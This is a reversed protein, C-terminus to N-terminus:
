HRGARSALWDLLPQQVPVLPDLLLVDTGGRRAVESRTRFVEARHRNAEGSVVVQEGTELDELTVPVGYRVDQERPTRLVILTAEIGSHELSPRLLDAPDHWDTVGILLGDAGGGLAAIAAAVRPSLSGAPASRDLADVIRELQRRDRSPPVITEGEGVIALSPVDGNAVASAALAAVIRRAVDVKRVGDEEHAMSGSADLIFRVPLATEADAERVFFRDSRALLKWDVRRLDDGPQYGRYQAFELGTGPLRSAHRGDAVGSGLRRSVLPTRALSAALAADHWAPRIM